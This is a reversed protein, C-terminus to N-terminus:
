VCVYDDAANGGMLFKICVTQTEKTYIIVPGNATAQKFLHDCNYWRLQDSKTM